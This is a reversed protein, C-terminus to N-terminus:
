LKRMLSLLLSAVDWILDYLISDMPKTFGVIYSYTTVHVNYM